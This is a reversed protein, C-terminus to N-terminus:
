QASSAPAAGSPAEETKAHAVSGTPAAVWAILLLAFLVLSVIILVDM